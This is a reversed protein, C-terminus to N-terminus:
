RCCFNSIKVLIFMVQITMLYMNNCRQISLHISNCKGFGVSTVLGTVYYLSILYCYPMTYNCVNHTGTAKDYTSLGIVTFMTHESNQLVYRHLSFMMCTFWHSTFVYSLVLKILVSAQRTLKFDFRLLHKEVERTKYNVTFLRLLRILRFTYMYRFTVPVTPDFVVLELPILGVADVILSSRTLDWPYAMQTHSAAFWLFAKILMEVVCILDIIYQFYFNSTLPRSLSEYYFAVNYPVMIAYFALTFLAVFDLVVRPRSAPEFYSLFDELKKTTVDFPRLWRAIKSNKDKAKEINSAVAKNRWANMKQLHTLSKVAATADFEHTDLLRDLDNKRVIYIVCFTLAFANASRESRFVLGTEGFFNGPGLTAFVVTDDASRIQVEGREIFFMEDGITGHHIICDGAGYFRQTMSQCLSNLVEDSCFDFFPCNQLYKLRALSTYHQKLTYPLESLFQEESAICQVGPDTMTNIYTYVRAILAESVGKERLFHQFKDAKESLIVTNEDTTAVSMVNGVIFGQVAIGFFLFVVLYTSEPVSVPWVDGIVFLTMTPLAWNLSRLYKDFISGGIVPLKHQFILLQLWTGRFQCTSGFDLDESHDCTEPIENHQLIHM